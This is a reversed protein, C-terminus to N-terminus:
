GVAGPRRRSLEPTLCEHFWRGKGHLEMGVKTVLVPLGKHKCDASGSRRAAPFGGVTNLKSADLAALKLVDPEDDEPDSLWCKAVDDLHSTLSYGRATGVYLIGLL